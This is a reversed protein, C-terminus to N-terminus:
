RPTTLTFIAKLRQAADPYVDPPNLGLQEVCQRAFPNGLRALEILQQRCDEPMAKLLDRFSLIIECIAHGLRDWTRNLNHYWTLESWEQGLGKILEQFAPDTANEM